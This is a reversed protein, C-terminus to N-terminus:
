GDKRRLHAVTKCEKPIVFAEFRRGEGETPQNRLAEALSENAIGLPICPGIIVAHLGDPQYYGASKRCCCMRKAKRLLIIDHCLKCYLLKM